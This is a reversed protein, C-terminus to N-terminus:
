VISGLDNVLNRSAVFIRGDPRGDDLLRLSEPHQSFHLNSLYQVTRFVLSYDLVMRHLAHATEVLHDVVVTPWLEAEDALKRMSERMEDDLVTAISESAGPGHREQVVISIAFLLSAIERYHLPNRMVLTHIRYLAKFIESGTDIRGHLASELLDNRLIAFRRRTREAKLERFSQRRSLWHLFGIFFNGASWVFVLLYFFTIGSVEM